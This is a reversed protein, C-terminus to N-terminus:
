FPPLEDDDAPLDGVLQPYCNTWVEALLESLDLHPWEALLRPFSVQETFLAAPGAEMWVPLLRRRGGADALDVSRAGFETALEDPLEVPRWRGPTGDLTLPIADAAPGWSRHAHRDAHVKPYDAALARGLSGDPVTVVADARWATSAARGVSPAAGETEQLRQATTPATGDHMAAHRALQAPDILRRWRRKDYYAHTAILAPPANGSLM